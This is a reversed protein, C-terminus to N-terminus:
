NVQNGHIFVRQITARESGYTEVVSIRLFKVPADDDKGKYYFDQSKKHLEYTVRMLAKYVNDDSSGYIVIEKPTTAKSNENMKLTIKKLAIAKQLEIKISRKTGEMCAYEQNDELVSEASCTTRHTPWIGLIRQVSVDCPTVGVDYTAKAGTMHVHKEGSFASVLGKGLHINRTFGFNVTFFFIVAASFWLNLYNRYAWNKM